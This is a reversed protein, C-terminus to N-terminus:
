ASAPIPEPTKRRHGETLHSLGQGVLSGGEITYAKGFGKVYRGSDPSLRFLKFDSLQSLQTIREGHRNALIDISQQWRADDDAIHEATVQYCVRKRAFLQAATDEDEIILVSAKPHLVLNHGHIAIESLLVYLASDDFAFPAYSAYPHGEQNLTSLMLTRRSSIHQEIELELKKELSKNKM